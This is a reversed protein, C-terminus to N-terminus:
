SSCNRNEKTLDKRKINKNCLLEALKVCETENLLMLDIFDSIGKIGDYKSMIEQRAEEDQRNNPRSPTDSVNDYTHTHKKQIKENNNRGKIKVPATNENPVSDHIKYSSTIQIKSEDNDNEM